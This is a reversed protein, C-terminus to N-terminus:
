GEEGREVGLLAAAGLCVVLPAMYWVHKDAALPIWPQAALAPVFAGLSGVLLVDGWGARGAAAARRAGMWTAVVTVIATGGVVAWPLGRTRGLVVAAASEVVALLADPGLPVEKAALAREPDAGRMMLGVYVPAAAAIGVTVAVAARRVRAAPLSSPPFVWLRGAWALAPAWAPWDTLVLVWVAVATWAAFGTRDEDLVRALATAALVTVLVVLSVHAWWAGAWVLSPLFIGAVAVAIVGRRPLARAALATVAVVTLTGLAVALWQRGDQFPLTLLDLLPPRDWPRHLLPLAHGPNDPLRTTALARVAFAAVAATGLLRPSPRDRV